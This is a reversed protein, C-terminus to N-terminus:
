QEYVVEGSGELSYGGLFEVAARFGPSGIVRLLAQIKSTEYHELPIILQYDERVLPIFDLGLARAAALIGLGAEARGSLVAAAVAMHTYEEQDYGKISDATLGAQALHHDLLIRTGSGAQRNIFSLGKEALDKLDRVGRPNGTPLILGQERLVLRVVKLPLGKLLRQIAPVNYLGTEPDLLHSGALHAQAGALAKLGGLSGVNGSTLYFRADHRRLLDALLDLTNDHSGIAVITGEIEELPKLLETAAPKGAELGETLKPVRVVGDARTLSTISGAGRHLPVAVTRDGVRGLKVRIYEEQGLKSPLAAVPSAEVRPRPWLPRGLMGALLPAAFEEFSIVASVPYGPNGMIPTQGIRGLVTPKGPMITVGHVLVEGLDQVVHATYDSTGSSSGANIIVLDFGEEVIRGLFEKLSDYDDALPPYRVPEGGLEEVMGALILSNFEVVRGPELRGQRARDLDVVETGTPVLAVRPRATVELEYVGGAVLAGLEYPGIRTGAPIILETAVLDEGLKRVHQWPFAPEELCIRERGQDDPGEESLVVKEVMVVANTEPPLVHGTNVLHYDVGQVLVVERGPRAGFTREALLAIGDMAALHHRPSSDLALVPGASVRGLAEEVRITERKLRTKLDVSELFLRRAEERDKMKLYVHRKLENKM